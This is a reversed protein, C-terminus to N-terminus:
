MFRSASSSVRMAAMRALLTEPRGQLAVVFGGQWLKERNEASLVAGGGTAVVTHQLSTAEAVM